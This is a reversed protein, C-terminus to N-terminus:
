FISPFLGRHPGLKTFNYGDLRFRQFLGARDFVKGLSNKWLRAQSEKVPTVM